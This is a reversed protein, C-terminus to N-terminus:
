ARWAGSHIAALQAVYVAERFTYRAVSDSPDGYILTERRGGRSVWWRCDWFYIHPKM